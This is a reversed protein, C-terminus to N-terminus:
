DEEMKKYRTARELEKIRDELQEQTMIRINQPEEIKEQQDDKKKHFDNINLNKNSKDKTSGTFRTAFYVVTGAAIAIALDRFITAFM